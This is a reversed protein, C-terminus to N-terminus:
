TSQILTKGDWLTGQNIQFYEDDLDITITYSTYTQLEVADVGSEKMAKITDAVLDFNQLHNISLKAIIFVPHNKGISKNGIKLEMMCGMFREYNGHNQCRAM